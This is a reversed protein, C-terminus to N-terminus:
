YDWDELVSVSFTYGAHQFVVGTPTIESLLMGEVREGQGYRRGNITVERFRPNPAYLHTAFELSPVRRQVNDPLDRIALTASESELPPQAEPAPEPEPEPRGVPEAVAVQAPAVAPARHDAATEDRTPAPTETSPVEGERPEPIRPAAMRLPATTESRVPAQASTLAPAPAARTETPAAPESSAADPPAPQGQRTVPSAASMNPKEGALWMALLVANVALITGLSWNLLRTHMPAKVSHPPPAHRVNVDPPATRAREEESRQLAELIYSM